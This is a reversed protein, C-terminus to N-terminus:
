RSNRRPKTPTTESNKSSAPSSNGPSSSEEESKEEEAPMDNVEKLTGDALLVHSEEVPGANSVGSTNTRPM